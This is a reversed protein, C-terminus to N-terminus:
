ILIWFFNLKKEMFVIYILIFIVIEFVYEMEVLKIYM